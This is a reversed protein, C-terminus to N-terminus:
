AADLANEAGISNLFGELFLKAKSSGPDVGYLEQHRKRVQRQSITSPNASGTQFMWQYLEVPITIVDVTAPQQHDTIPPQSNTTPPETTGWGPQYGGWRERIDDIFRQIQREYDPKDSAAVFPSQIRLGQQDSCYLEFSGRGPLRNTQTGPVGSASVSDNANRMKGVIRTNLKTHASAPVDYVRQTAAIVVFGVGRGKQALRQLALALAESQDGPLSNLLDSLEDVYLLISHRLFSVDGKAASRTRNDMEDVLSQIVEAAQRPENIVPRALHPLGAFPRFDVAKPDIIVMSLSGPSNTYALTLLMTMSLQTKGSGPSGAIFASFDEGALQMALTTTQGRIWALGLLASREDIKWTAVQPWLEALSVAPPKPKDIEIRMPKPQIRVNYDYGARALQDELALEFGYVKQPDAHPNYDVPISWFFPSSISAKANAWFHPAETAKDIGGRAKLVGDVTTFLREPMDAPIPLRDGQYGWLERWWRKAQEKLWEWLGPGGIPPLGMFRRGTNLAGRTLVSRLSIENLSPGFLIFRSANIIMSM